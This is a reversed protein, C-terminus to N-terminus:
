GGCHGISWARVNSGRFRSASLGLRNPSHKLYQPFKNPNVRKVRGLDIAHPAVVPRSRPANRADCGNQGLPSPQEREFTTMRGCLVKEINSRNAQKQM